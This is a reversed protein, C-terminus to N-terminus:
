ADLGAITQRLVDASRQLAAIEDHDLKATMIREVGNRALVCPASLCVDSIGYEGALMTSVTLVSHEHRLIAGAIKVLALGVAYFTAGKYNIIHYASERVAEAVQQQEERWEKGCKGCVTCYDDIHMGGIHTMSWAAVESDGHEGLIYAHINRSDVGCHEGLLYRFRATDLVTGSGIIRERPWGSHEHAVWTLVDVPNSVIVVIAQSGAADIDDMIQRIIGANRQLLDLRSEGPAQKAGATVFIINADAYDATDAAYVHAPPAFPLGHALDLAQGHAHDRNKDLLAIEDALGSQLLAYAFSSGVAGSGVIVVKRSKTNQRGAATM